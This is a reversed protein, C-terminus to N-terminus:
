LYLDLWGVISALVQAMSPSDLQFIIKCIAGQSICNILFPCNFSIYLGIATASGGDKKNKARSSIVGGEIGIFAWVTVLM